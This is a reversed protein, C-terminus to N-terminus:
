KKSTVNMGELIEIGSSPQIKVVFEWFKKKKLVSDKYNESTKDYIGPFSSVLSILIESVTHIQKENLYKKLESM